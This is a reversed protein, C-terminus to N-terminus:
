VQPAEIRGTTAVTGTPNYTYALDITEIGPASGAGSLTRGALYDPVPLCKTLGNLGGTNTLSLTPKYHCRHPHDPNSPCISRWAM